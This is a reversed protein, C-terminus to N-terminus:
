PQMTVPLGVFTGYQKAADELAARQRRTLAAFLQFDVRVSDRRRIRKWSGVIRGDVIISPGLALGAAAFPARGLLASRDKYGVTLEDFAPLLCAQGITPALSKPDFGSWYEQGDASQAYLGTRVADLAARADKITLGSWWAFDRSTAPGHSAFYRRALEALAEDDKLQRGGPIWEELLTFTHQKGRRPGFCILAERALYGLIHLGRQEGATRVGSGELVGYIEARTLQKGGRLAGAVVEHARAFVAETLGLRRYMAGNSSIGRRALLKLMWRADQPPVFHITGRMPWTRVISKSAIAEEAAAETGRRMRLGIAYLSALFDQAQVAGFWRVVDAPSDFDPKLLHQAHLRQFALDPTRM